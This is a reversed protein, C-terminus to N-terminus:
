GGRGRSIELDTSFTAAQSYGVDEAGLRVDKALMQVLEGNSITVLKRRPAPEPANPQNAAARVTRAQKLVISIEKGSPQAAHLIGEYVSGDTVQACHGGHLERETAM